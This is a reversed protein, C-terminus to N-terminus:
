SNKELTQGIQEFNLTIIKNNNFSVYYFVLTIVIFHKNLWYETMKNLHNEDTQHTIGM